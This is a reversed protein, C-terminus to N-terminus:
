EKGGKTLASLFTSLDKKEEPRPPPPPAPPKEATTLAQFVAARASQSATEAQPEELAETAFGWAM